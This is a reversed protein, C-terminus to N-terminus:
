NGNSAVIWGMSTHAESSRDDLALAREAITRASDLYSENAFGQTGMYSYADAIGAYAAAFASDQGIAQRFMAVAESLSSASRHRFEDRGNLYLRYAVTDVRGNPQAVPADGHVFSQVRRAVAEIVARQLVLTRSTDNEFPWASLHRDEPAYLLRVDVHVARGNRTLSADVVGDCDLARGMEPLSQHTAGLKTVSFASKVRPEPYRM